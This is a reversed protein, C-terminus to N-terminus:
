RGMWNSRIIRPAGPTAPTVDSTFTQREAECDLNLGYSRLGHIVAFAEVRCILHENRLAPPEASKPLRTDVGFGSPSAKIGGNPSGNGDGASIKINGAPNTITGIFNRV